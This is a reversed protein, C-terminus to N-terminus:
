PRIMLELFKSIDSRVGSLSLAGSDVAQNWSIEGSILALWTTANMEVVNPPNGRVHSPGEGIQIAAYPPIRVEISRGPAIQALQNLSFKVKALIEPDRDM